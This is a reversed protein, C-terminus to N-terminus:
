SSAASCPRGVEECRPRWRAAVFRDLSRREASRANVSIRLRATGPPVSPPRIARVDFGERRCRAPWPSRASTTASSSPIIQSSRRGARRHGGRAARRAPLRALALLRARREPERRRHDLSPTSRPPWAGAAARDLLHVAARAPDPLRDGVRTRRRVRRQRRAGQRRHQDVADHERRRRGGRDARQRARRLRRGRAGRRRDLTPATVDASRRTSPSRRSTATWASCRSSSSSRVPRRGRRRARAARALRRPRQASVRRARARSLRM